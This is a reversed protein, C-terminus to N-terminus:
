ILIGAIGFSAYLISAFGNLTFFAVNVRRLDDAKVIFHQYALMIIFVSYGTWYLFGYSNRIGLIFLLIATIAHLLISLILARQRGLQVPISKLRNERDFDDDQLAYIIDFGSVWCLVAASLIVPPWAFQGTVALFAGTPALSLGLGLVFHSFYTFRKTFSYGLIVLLAVPSLYFCLRNIFWTTAIFFLANLLCFALASEPRIIEAPIERIATRPNKKDFERDAWRNFSMAANRAFFMCLIVFFLLLWDSTHGPHEMAMFFGFLAFPMAFITHAFKVMSLYNGIKTMQKRFYM